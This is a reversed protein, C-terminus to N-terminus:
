IEHPDQRRVLQEYYDEVEELARRRTGTLAWATTTTDSAPIDDCSWGDVPGNVVTFTYTRVSASTIASGTTEDSACNVPSMVVFHKRGVDIHEPTMAIKYTAPIAVSSAVSITDAQDDYTVKM